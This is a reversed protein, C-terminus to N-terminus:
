EDTEGPVMEIRAGPALELETFVELFEEIAYLSGEELEVARVTQGYPIDLRARGHRERLYFSRGDDLTGEWQTPCAWSTMRAEVVKV